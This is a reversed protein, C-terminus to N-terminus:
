SQVTRLFPVGSWLIDSEKTYSQSSDWFGERLKGNLTLLFIKAKKRNWFVRQATLRDHIRTIFHKQKGTNSPLAYCGVIDAPSVDVDIEKCLEIVQNEASQGPSVLLNTFVVNERRGYQNLNDMEGDLDAIYAAQRNVVAKIHEM